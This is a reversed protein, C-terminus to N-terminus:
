SEEPSERAAFICKEARATVLRSSDSTEACAAMVIGGTADADCVEVEVVVEVDVDVTYQVWVTIIESAGAVGVMLLQLAVVTFAVPETCRLALLTLVVGVELMEGVGVPPAKAVAFLAAWNPATPMIPRTPIAKTPRSHSSTTTASRSMICAPMSTAVDIARERLALRGECEAWVSALEKAYM